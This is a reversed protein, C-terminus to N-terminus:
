PSAGTSVGFQYNGNWTMAPYSVLTAFFYQGTLTGPSGPPVTVNILLRSPFPNSFNIDVSYPGSVYSKDNSFTGPAILVAGANNNVIFSSKHSYIINNGSNKGNIYLEFYQALIITEYTSPPTFKVTENINFVTQTATSTTAIRCVCRNIASAQGDVAGIINQITSPTTGYCRLTETKRFAKVVFQTDEAGLNIYQCTVDGISIGGYTTRGLNYFFANTFDMTDSPLVAQILNIKLGSPLSVQSAASGLQITGGPIQDWGILLQGTTTRSTIKETKITNEFDTNGSMTITGRVTTASDNSGLNLAGGPTQSTGVSIPATTTLGKIETVEMGAGFSQLTSFAGAVDYKVFGSLTSLANAITTNVWSTTPVKTTNDPVIPTVTTSAPLGLFSAANVAISDTKIGANFTQLTTFPGAGAYTVYGAADTYGQNRVWQSTVVRNGTDNDAPATTTAAPLSLTSGSVLGISNTLIDPLTLSTGSVLAITNTKIGSNFTQIATFAATGALKAFLITANLANTITTNVWNCNPVRGTNDPIPPSSASASNINVNGGATYPEVSNTKIDAAFSQKTTFPGVGSYTVFGATTTFNQDRVWQSTVIRSSGPDGTAPATTTAGNPLSVTTLTNPKIENVFLESGNAVTMDANVFVGAANNAEVDTLKVKPMIVPRDSDGIRVTNAVPATADANIVIGGTYGSNNAIEINGSTSDNYLNMPASPAFSKLNSCSISGPFLINATQATPFNIYSGGSGTGTPQIWNEPIYFPIRPDIPQFETTM